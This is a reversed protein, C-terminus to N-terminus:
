RYRPSYKFIYFRRLMLGQGNGFDEGTYLLHVFPFIKCLALYTLRVEVNMDLEMTDRRARANIRVMPTQVTQMSAVSRSIVRANM